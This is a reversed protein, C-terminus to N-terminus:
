YETTNATTSAVSDSIASIEGTYINDPPMEWYGGKPVMIGKKDNDVSAAQLKLWMDQVGVNSIAFVLRDVNVAQVTTSTVGSVTITGSLTATDNNNRTRGIKIVM